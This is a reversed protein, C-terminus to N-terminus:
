GDGNAKRLNGDTTIGGSRIVGSKKLDDVVVGSRRGSM